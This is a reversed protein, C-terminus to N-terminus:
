KDPYLESCLKGGEGWQAKPVDKVVVWVAEAPVSLSDCVAKTVAEILNKKQEGSKGAFTEISVYPM